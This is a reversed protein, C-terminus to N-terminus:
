HIVRGRFQDYILAQPKESADREIQVETWYSRDVFRDNGLPILVSTEGSPWLMVLADGRLALNVTANAQYFDSGFQFAGIYRKLVAPTIKRCHLSQYQRGLSLAALDYGM